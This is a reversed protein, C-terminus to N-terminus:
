RSRYRNMTYTFANSRTKSRRKLIFEKILVYVLYPPGVAALFIALALGMTVLFAVVGAAFATM